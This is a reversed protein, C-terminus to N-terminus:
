QHIVNYIMLYAYEYNRIVRCLSGAFSLSLSRARALNDLARLTTGWHRNRMASKTGAIYNYACASLSRTYKAYGSRVKRARSCAAVNHFMTTDRPRVRLRRVRVCVSSFFSCM